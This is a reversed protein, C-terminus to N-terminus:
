EPTAQNRWVLIRGCNHCYYVEAARKVEAIHQPPIFGHCVSCAEGEVAAIAVGGKGKRIREYAAVLEGPLSSVIEARRKIWAARTEKLAKGEREIESRKAAVERNEGALQGRLRGQEARGEDAAEMCELAEDEWASVKDKLLSIEHLLAQYQENTRVEALQGQYKRLKQEADDVDMEATRRRKDIAEMEQDTGRLENEILAIRESLKQLRGPVKRLRSEVEALHSDVEQLLLLSDLEGQVGQSPSSGHM